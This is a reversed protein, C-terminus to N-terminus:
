EGPKCVGFEKLEAAARVTNEHWEPPTIATYGGYAGVSSVMALQGPDAVIPAMIRPAGLVARMADRLAMATLRAFYAAGAYKVINLGAALGDMMAGQSSIAAIKGDTVAVTVVHGGSFSSGWLGIRAPDVGKLARAYDIASLWDQLQAPIDVLLADM